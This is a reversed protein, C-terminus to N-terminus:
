AEFWELKVNNFVADRTELRSVTIEDEDALTGAGAYARLIAQLDNFARYHGNFRSEAYERATGTTILFQWDSSQLLFLERAMQRLIRSSIADDRAEKLAETMSREVEHIREWTWATEKNNWTLHNGGEGWSGEPLSISGLPALTQLVASARAIVPVGPRSGTEGEIPSASQAKEQVMDASEPGNITAYNEGFASVLAYLWDIGEFWWHGFLEADFPITLVGAQGTEEHYRSLKGRIIGAFHRAHAQAREAAKEPEYLLKAGLDAKHDTVRWYRLGGPSHKKHFELYYPDGPYGWRASWVQLSTDTDRAFFACEGAAPRGTKYIGYLAGQEETRSPGSAEKGEDSRREREFSGPSDQYHRRGSQALSLDRDIAAAYGGAAADKQLVHCGDLFFYKLKHASLIEELGKRREASPMRGDSSSSIAPRYGCEPLWMGEPEKGFYKRYTEVGQRIQASVSADLSLLPLYAHTAASVIIEIQGEEQFRRFAGLLSEDYKRTFDDLRSRYFTEWRAALSAEKKRGKRRFAHRDDRAARIKEAVYDKLARRFEKSALMECLVPTIGITFGARKGEKSLRDILNLLPIYTECAAESLWDSGHPWKGHSLVYPLHAHLVLVVYGPPAATRKTM